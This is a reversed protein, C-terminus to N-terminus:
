QSEELAQGLKKSRSASHLKVIFQYGEALLYEIVDSTGFGGDLRILLQGKQAESLGLIELTARLM